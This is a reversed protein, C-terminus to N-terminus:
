KRDTGDTLRSTAEQLQLGLKNVGTDSNGDGM